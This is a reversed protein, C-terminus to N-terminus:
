KNEKNIIIPPEKVVIVKSSGLNEGETVDNVPAETCNAPEDSGGNDGVLEEAKEQANEEVDELLTDVDLKGGKIADKIQAIAEDLTIKGDNNRDKFILEALLLFFKKIGLKKWAGYALSEALWVTPCLDLIGWINFGKEFIAYYIITMIFGLVYTSIFTICDFLSERKEKQSDTLGDHILKRKIPTKILGVLVSTLVGVLAVWIGHERILQLFQEM